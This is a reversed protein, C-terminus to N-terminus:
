SLTQVSDRIDSAFLVRFFSLSAVIMQIKLVRVEGIVVVFLDLFLFGNLIWDVISDDALKDHDVM